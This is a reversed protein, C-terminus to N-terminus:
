NYRNGADLISDTTSGLFRMGIQRFLASAQPNNDKALEALRLYISAFTINNEIWNPRPFDPGIPETIGTYHQVASLLATVEGRVDGKERLLRALGWYYHPRNYPDLELARSALAIRQDLTGSSPCQSILFPAQSEWRNILAAREAEPVASSFDPPSAGLAALALDIHTAANWPLVTLAQRLAAPDESARSLQSQESAYITGLTAAILALAIMCARLWAPQRKAEGTEATSVPFQAVALLVAFFMMNALYTFDFDVLAHLIFGALGILILRYAWKSQASVCGAGQRLRRYHWWIFGAAFLLGIAGAEAIIQMMFSHPDTTYYRWDPQFLPYHWGFNGLGVGQVPSKLFMKWSVTWFTLRGQLSYDAANWISAIRAALSAPVSTFALFIVMAALIGLTSLFALPNLKKRPAPLAPKKLRSIADIGALAGMLILQFALAIYAARSFTLLLALLLVATILIFSQSRNRRVVATALPWTLLLFAAYSNHLGFTSALHEGPSIQRLHPSYLFLGYLATLLASVAMTSALDVAGLKRRSLNHAALAYACAASALWLSIKLTPYLYGTTLLAFAFFLAWAAIPKWDLKLGGKWVEWAFILPIVTLGILFGLAGNGGEFLPLLLLALLFLYRRV